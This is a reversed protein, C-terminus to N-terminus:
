VLINVSKFVVVSVTSIMQFDCLAAPAPIATRNPRHQIDSGLRQVFTYITYLAMYDSIIRNPIEIHARVLLYPRIGYTVHFAYSPIDTFIILIKHGRGHSHAPTKNHQFM